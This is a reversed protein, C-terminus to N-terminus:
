QLPRKKGDFMARVLNERHAFSALAVGGIHLIVLALAVNAFIEHAEEWQEVIAPEGGETSTGPPAAAILGSLPGKGEHVALLVMGSATTIALVALLAIVMAGGAPSHGIYRRARLRLEDFIHSLVTGAPFVFDTFRAHATGVFGWVVRLVVLGAVAYGAWIHLFLPEGESLYATFFGIALSWHFARVARDWVYETRANDNTAVM